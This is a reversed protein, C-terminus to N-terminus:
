EVQEKDTSTDHTNWHYESEYQPTSNYEQILQGRVISEDQENLKIDLFDWDITINDKLYDLIMEYKEKLEESMIKGIVQILEKISILLIM